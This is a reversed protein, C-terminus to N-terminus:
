SGGGNSLNYISQLFRQRNEEFHQELENTVQVHEISDAGSTQGNKIWPPLSISLTSGDDLMKGSENLIPFDTGLPINENSPETEGKRIAVNRRIISRYTDSQYYQSLDKRKHYEEDLNEQFQVLGLNGFFENMDPSEGVLKRYEATVKSSHEKYVGANSVSIMSSLKNINDEDQIERAPVTYSYGSYKQDIDDDSIDDGLYSRALKELNKNLSQRKEIAAQKIENVKNRYKITVSNDYYDTMYPMGYYNNGYNNNFYGQFRKRRNEIAKEQEEMMDMQLNDCIEEINSPLLMETGSPNYGPVYITKDSYQESVINNMRKYQEPYMQPNQQIMQLAPNACSNTTPQNMFGQQNYGNSNVTLNPDNYNYYDSHSVISMNTTDDNFQQHVEEVPEGTYYNYKLM